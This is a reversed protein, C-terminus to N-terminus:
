KGVDMCYAYCVSYAHMWKHLMSVIEVASKELVVFM